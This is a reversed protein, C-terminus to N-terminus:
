LLCYLSAFFLYISYVFLFFIYPVHHYTRTTIDISPRLPDDSYPHIRTQKVPFIPPIKYIVVTDATFSILHLEYHLWNKCRSSKALVQTPQLTKALAIQISYIYYVAAISYVFYFFITCVERQPADMHRRHRSFFFCIRANLADIPSRTSRQPVIVLHTAETHMSSPARRTLLSFFFLISVQSLHLSDAPTADIILM